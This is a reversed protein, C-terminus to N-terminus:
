SKKNLLESEKTQYGAAFANEYSTDLKPYTNWWKAAKTILDKTPTIKGPSYSPAADQLNLKKADRLLSSIYGEICNWKMDSMDQERAIRLINEIKEIHEQLTSNSPNTEKEYKEAVALFYDKVEKVVRDVSSNINDYSKNKKKEKESINLVAFDCFVGLTEFVEVDIQEPKALFIGLKIDDEWTPHVMYVNNLYNYQSATIFLGEMDIHVPYQKGSAEWEKLDKNLYNYISPKKEPKAETWVTVTMRGKEDEKVRVAKYKM